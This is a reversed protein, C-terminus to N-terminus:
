LVTEYTGQKVIIGRPYKLAFFRFANVLKYKRSARAQAYTYLKSWDVQVHTFWRYFGITEITHPKGFFPLLWVYQFM